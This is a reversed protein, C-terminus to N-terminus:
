GNLGHERSDGNLSPTGSEGTARCKEYVFVDGAGLDHFQSMVSEIGVYRANNWCLRSQALM